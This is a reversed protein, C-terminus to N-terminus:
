FKSYSTTVKMWRRLGSVFRVQFDTGITVCGGKLRSVPLIKFRCTLIGGQGLIREGKSTKDNRRKEGHVCSSRSFRRELSSVLEVLWPLFLDMKKYIEIANVLGMM